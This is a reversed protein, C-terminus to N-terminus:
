VGGEGDRSRWGCRRRIGLGSLPRRRVFRERSRTAFLFLCHIISVMLDNQLVQCRVMLSPSIAIHIINVM